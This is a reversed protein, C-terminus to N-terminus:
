VPSYSPTSRHRRSATRPSVLRELAAFAVETVIALAAVLV